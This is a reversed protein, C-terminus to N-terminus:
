EFMWSIINEPEIKVDGLDAIKIKEFPVNIEVELLKIMEGMFKPLNEPKVHFLDKNKPDVEGLERAMKIRTEEFLALEKKVSEGLKAIKYSIVAPFSNKMVKLLSDKSEYVEKLKIKM